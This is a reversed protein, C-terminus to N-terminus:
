LFGLIGIDLGHIAEKVAVFRTEDSSKSFDLPIIKTKVKYQSEAFDNHYM